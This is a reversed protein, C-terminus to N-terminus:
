LSAARGRDPAQLDKRVAKPAGAGVWNWTQLLFKRRRRDAKLDLAAVIEDGVLVPLTFYGFRRKAKPVYAEFLHEYGFFAATRKRQIILPDFPSLIHVLECAPRGAIKWCSEPRAWHEGAPAPSPRRCWDNRRGRSEILALRRSRGAAGLHCISDLSVIGQARM